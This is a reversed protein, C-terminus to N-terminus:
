RNKNLDLLAPKEYFLPIAALMKPCLGYLEAPPKGTAVETAPLRM